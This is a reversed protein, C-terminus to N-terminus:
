VNVQKLLLKNHEWLIICKEARLSQPLKESVKSLSAFLLKLGAITWGATNLGAHYHTNTHHWLNQDSATNWAAACSLSFPIRLFPSLLPPPPTPTPLNPLCIGMNATRVHAPVTLVAEPLHFYGPGQLRKQGGPSTHHHLKALALPHAIIYALLAPPHLHRWLPLETLGPTRWFVGRHSHLPQGVHGTWVTQVPRSPQVPNQTPPPVPLPPQAGPLAPPSFFPQHFFSILGRFDVGVFCHRTLCHPANGLARSWCRRSQM